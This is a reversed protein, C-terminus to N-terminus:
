ELVEGTLLVFVDELTAVATFATASRELEDLVRDPADRVSARRDFTRHTPHDPRGGARRERDDALREPPGYYETAREGVHEARLDHPTGRAVVAGHSMVAVDDALREAEEIYHTSM